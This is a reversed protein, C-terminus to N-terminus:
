EDGFEEYRAIEPVILVQKKSHRLAEISDDDGTLKNKLIALGRVYEPKNPDKGIGLIWDAEGPKGTKSGDIDGMNLYLQGEGTAGAQSVGIVPAYKKALERSWQYLDKLMFHGEGSMGKIKDLQDIIILKPQFEKCLQEIKRYSIASDDYIKLRTGIREAYSKNYHQIDRFLDEQTVGFLSQFNRVKVKTGREENNIWLTNGDHQETMHTAVQSVFTTKGTEPRAIIFGFDGVRLSGLSQNLYRLPWRLGMTHRTSNYLDQLDDTVFEKDDVTPKKEDSVAELLETYDKRGEVIDLAISAIESAKVRQLHATFYGEAVEVSVSSESMQQFIIDFAQKEEPKLVPHTSYFFLALEEVSINRDGEKAKLNKLTRFL